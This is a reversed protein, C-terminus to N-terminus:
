RTLHNAYLAHFLQCGRFNSRQYTVCPKCGQLFLDFVQLRFSIKILFIILVKTSSINKRFKLFYVAAGGGILLIVFVVPLMNNSKKDSKDPEPEATPEERVIEKGTCSKMNM